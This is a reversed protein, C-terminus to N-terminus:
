SIQWPYDAAVTVMIGSRAASPATLSARTERKVIVAILAFMTVPILLRDPGPPHHSFNVRSLQVASGSYEYYASISEICSNLPPCPLM